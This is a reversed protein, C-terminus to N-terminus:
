RRVLWWLGPLIAALMLAVGVFAWRLGVLEALLGMGVPGFFFGTFGLMWARSIAYARQDPAVAAGLLTNASPVVVAVGMGILAVGLVAIEQVPALALTLAGFVGLCASYAVLRASGLRLALGQGALRGFGMTLGLMAPGFAGEGPAGGLTREIHLVSWTETANESIFAAFLIAAAPLIARWPSAAAAAPATEPAVPAAREIMLASCFLLLLALLPLAAEPPWGAHRALGMLAASGAFGFSFLAHNLNMLPLNTRAENLSIRVNGAIDVTSMAAGLGLMVLALSAFGGVALPLLAALALVCGSLPLLWRGLARALQPALAMATIGGVASLILAQGFAADTAAARLKYEPLYAAFGGWFVGIAVLAVGTVRSERLSAGFNM